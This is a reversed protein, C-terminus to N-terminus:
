KGSDILYKRTRWRGTLYYVGGIVFPTLGALANGYWFGYVGCAFTVGLLLSLGIRIIVGDFMAVALNLKFNGSGNILSFMPPRLASGAYLVLAVGIYNAVAYALLEPDSTFIGFVYEPFIVTVIGMLLSATVNIILSSRLIEPVRDYKEAGICQGIMSSGAAALAHNLVNVIQSVKSGIGTMAAVMVGYSNIWANVFLMSFSVSASQIVMPIGLKLLMSMSDRDILFDRPRFQFGFEMRRRYLFILALIFSLAQSLVTALAVEFVAGDFVVVFILDLVVNLLTAVAVFLFPHRSDGMGRLVASVVNYGYIFVLGSSCVTVYSLTYEAAEPPTNMWRLITERFILCAVGMVVSSVFLSTFLTGIFRSTREFLKAGTLQSIIVQGANSFGMAIFMMFHLIEGGISVAGLGETGIFHGVIVMDATNYLMQLLGSLLLPLAFTVLTKTVNGTTLDWVIRKNSKM